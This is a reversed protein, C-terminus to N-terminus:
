DEEFFHANVGVVSGARLVSRRRRVRGRRYGRSRRWRPCWSPTRSRFAGYVAGYGGCVPARALEKSVFLRSKRPKQLARQRVRVTSGRRVMKPDPCSTAVWPLPKRTDSGSELDDWRGGTAVPQSREAGYVSWVEPAGDPPGLLVFDDSEGSDRRVYGLAAEWFETQRQLDDVRLVISGIRIM